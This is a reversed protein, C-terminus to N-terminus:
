FKLPLTSRHTSSFEMIIFHHYLSVHWPIPHCCLSMWETCLLHTRFQIKVFSHSYTVFVPFSMRPFLSHCKSFCFACFPQHPFCLNCSFTCPENPPRPWIVPFVSAKRPIRKHGFSFWKVFAKHRPIKIEIIWHQPVSQFPLSPFLLSVSCDDM